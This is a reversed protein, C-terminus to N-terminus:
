RVYYIAIIIITLLHLLKIGEKMLGSAFRVYLYRFICTSWHCYDLIKLFWIIFRCFVLTLQYKMRGLSFMWSTIFYFCNRLQREPDFISPESLSKIILNNWLLYNLKGRMIFNWFFILKWQVVLLTWSFTFYFCKTSSVWTKSGQWIWHFQLQPFQDLAVYFTPLM